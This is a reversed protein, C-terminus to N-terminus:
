ISCVIFWVRIQGRTKRYYQFQKM